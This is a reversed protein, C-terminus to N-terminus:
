GERKLRMAAVGKFWYKLTGVSRAKNSQSSCENNCLTGGSRSQCLLKGLQNVLFM